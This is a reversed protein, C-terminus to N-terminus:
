DLAMDEDEVPAKQSDAPKEAEQLAKVFAIIDSVCFILVKSRECTLSCKSCM